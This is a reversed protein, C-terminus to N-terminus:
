WASSGSPSTARGLASLGRIWYPSSCASSSSVWSTSSWIPWVPIMISCCQATWQGTAASSISGRLLCRPSSYALVSVTIERKWISLKEHCSHWSCVIFVNIKLTYINFLVASSNVWKSCIIFSMLIHPVSNSKKHCWVFRFVSNWNIRFVAYVM